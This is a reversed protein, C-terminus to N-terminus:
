YVESSLYDVIRSKIAEAAETAKQHYVEDFNSDFIPDSDVNCLISWDFYDVANSIDIVKGSTGIVVLLNGHSISKRLIEYNKAEEGFMVVNHRIKKSNCNPCKKVDNQKVYGVHFVEDCNKCRLDTLTGHVHVVNDCGARELLDDVNQTIIDIQDPFRKSMEAIMFHTTNPLKDKLSVRLGDYFAAAKAPNKRFGEISCIEKINQGNWLGNSGRFTQMGSEASIGAGSFILARPKKKKTKLGFQLLHALVNKFKIM